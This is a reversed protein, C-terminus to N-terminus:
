DNIKELISKELSNQNENDIESLETTFEKNLAGIDQNVQEIADSLLKQDNDLRIRSIYVESSTNLVTDLKDASVKISEERSINVTPNIKNDSPKANSSKTATEDPTPKEIHQINQKDIEVTDDNSTLALILDNIKTKVPGRHAVEDTIIGIRKICELSIDILRADLILQDSRVNDM